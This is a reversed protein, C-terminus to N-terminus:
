EVQIIDIAELVQLSLLDFLLLALSGKFYCFWEPFSFLLFNTFSVFDLQLDVCTGLVSFAFVVLPGFLLLLSEKFCDSHEAFVHPLYTSVNSSVSAM